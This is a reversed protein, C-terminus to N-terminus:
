FSTQIKEKLDEPFNAIFDEWQNPISQNMSNKFSQVVAKMLKLLDESAGDEKYSIFASCLHPFFKMVAMPNFPIM